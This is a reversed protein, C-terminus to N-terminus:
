KKRNMTSCYLTVFMLALTMLVIVYKAGDPMDRLTQCFAWWMGPLDMEAIAECVAPWRSVAVIILIVILIKKWAINPM